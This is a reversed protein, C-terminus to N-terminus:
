DRLTRLYEILNARDTADSIGTFVMNTGPHHAAPDALFADLEAESWTGGVGALARSYGFGDFRAKPADVIGWLPPGVRFPSARELGHCVTCGEAMTRGAAVAPGERASRGDGAPAALILVVALGGVVLSVAALAGIFLRRRRGSPSAFSAM